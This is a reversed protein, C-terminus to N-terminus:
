QSRHAECSYEMIVDPTRIFGLREYLRTTLDTEVQTSSGARLHKAGIVTAWGQLMLILQAAHLKGRAEPVVFVALESAIRDTSSWHQDAMALAGGVIRGAEIAVHVFGLPDNILQHLLHAVKEPSYTLRNWAPSEDHMRAGLAVLDEVDEHTAAKIM